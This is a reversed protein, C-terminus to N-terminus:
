TRLNTGALNEVDVRVDTYNLTESFAETSMGKPGGDEVARKGRDLDDTRYRSSM